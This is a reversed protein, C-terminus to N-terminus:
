GKCGMGFSGEGVWTCDGGVREGSFVMFVNMLLIGHTGYTLRVFWWSTVMTSYTSPAYTSHIMMTRPHVIADTGPIDFM